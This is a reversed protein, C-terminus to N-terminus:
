RLLQSQAEIKTVPLRIISPTAWICSKEIIFTKKQYITLINKWIYCLSIFIQLVKIVFEFKVLNGIVKNNNEKNNKRQRTIGM